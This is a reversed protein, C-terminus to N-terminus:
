AKWLERNIVLTAAEIDLVVPVEGGSRDYRIKLRALSVGEPLEPAEDLGAVVVQVPRGPATEVIQNAWNTVRRDLAGQLERKREAADPRSTTAEDSLDPPVHVLQFLRRQLDAMLVGSQTSVSPDDWNRVLVRERLDRGFHEAFRFVEALIEAVPFANNTGLGPRWAHPFLVEGNVFLGVIASNEAGDPAAESV